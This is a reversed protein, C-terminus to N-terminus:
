VLTDSGTQGCMEQVQTPKCGAKGLAKQNSRACSLCAEGSKHACLEQFKEACGDTTPGLGDCTPNCPLGAGLQQCDDVLIAPVQKRDYFWDALGKFSTHGKLQTVFQTGDDHRLHIGDGHDFCSALFIGDGKKGSPHKVVLNTSNQMARGFYAAFDQGDSTGYQDKPLGLQTHLQEPDYWNQVVYM